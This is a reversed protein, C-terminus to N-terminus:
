PKLQFVRRVIFILQRLILNIIILYLYYGLKIPKLYLLINNIM